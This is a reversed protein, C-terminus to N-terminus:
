QSVPIGQGRPDSVAHLVGDSDREVYFVKARNPTFKLSYGYRALFELDPSLEEDLFVTDPSYQHHIRPAAVADLPHMKKRLRNLLTNIIANPIFSGGPAGISIEVRNGNMLFTPSMSSLPTKGPEIQNAKGGILGYANEKSPDAVFDDMTDNMILGTGPIMLRSGFIYNISHTSSIAEGSGNLISIHTTNYSELKAPMSGKQSVGSGGPLFKPDWRIPDVGVRNDVQADQSQIFARIRQAKKNLLSADLIEDVPVSSFDPDAGYVSRDFYGQRMSEILYRSYYEIKLDSISDSEPNLFFGSDLRSMLALIEFLFVGSSPPPFGVFERGAIEARIPTRELVRYQRLDSLEIYGRNAKIYYSIKSATEGSYFEEAGFRVLKKLTIALDKQVLVDGARLARGAPFFVLRMAENMERKSKEIANALDEYVTFGEEALRIAPGLVEERSLLGFKEHLELWGKVNGPVAISKAGFLSANEVLNGSGDLYMSPYASQPARERFDFAYTRQETPKHYLLFGGGALGTSQPRLVSIAFSAAVYSDILNGGKRHIELGAASALPHDTAIVFESGKQYKSESKCNLFPLLVFPALILFFGIRFAGL